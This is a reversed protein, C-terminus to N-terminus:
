FHDAAFEAIRQENNGFLAGGPVLMLAQAQERTVAEFTTVFDDENRVVLVQLQVGMIDADRRLEDLGSGPGRALAATPTLRPVSECLLELPKTSPAARLVSTGTINGGPRALSAVHGAGVPDPHFMFVVPITSTAEKAAQTQPATAAVIVDVPLAVLE